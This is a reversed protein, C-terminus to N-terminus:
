LWKEESDAGCFVVHKLFEGEHNKCFISGCVNCQFWGRAGGEKKTKVTCGDVHCTLARRKSEREEQKVRKAEAKANAEDEKRKEEAEAAALLEFPSFLTSAAVRAKGDKMKTEGKKKSFLHEVSRIMVQVHSERTSKISTGANLDLLHLIREPDFPYLGTNQFSRQIVRDTFAEKEAEFGAQNMAMRIQLPSADQHLRIKAASSGLIKKFRAFITDDLPQLFHSTNAPLLWCMVGMELADKVTSPVKHAALQDGFLYCWASPHAQRWLEGFKKM